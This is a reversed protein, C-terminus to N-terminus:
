TVWQAAHTGALVRMADLDNQLQEMLDATQGVARSMNKINSALQAYLRDKAQTAGSRSMTPQFRSPNGVSIVNTTLTFECAIITATPSFTLPLKLSRGLQTPQWGALWKIQAPTWNHVRTLYKSHRRFCMAWSM